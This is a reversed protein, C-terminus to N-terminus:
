TAPRGSARATRPASTRRGPRCARGTSATASSSSAHQRRRRHADHLHAGGTRPRLLVAGRGLAPRQGAGRAHGRRRQAVFRQAHLHASAPAAHLGPLARRTARASCRPSARARRPRRRRQRPDRGLRAPVHAPTGRRAHARERHAASRPPLPDRQGGLRRGGGRHARQRERRRGRLGAPPPGGPARRRRPRPRDDEHGRRGDAARPARRPDPARGALVRDRRAPLARVLVPIGPPRARAPHDEGVPRLERRRGGARVDGPLSRGASRLPVPLADRAGDLERCPDRPLRRGARDVAHHVRLVELAPRRRQRDHRRQRLRTLTADPLLKPDPANHGFLAARTRLAYVAPATAPTALSYAHQLGTEWEVRTTQSRDDTQVRSLRVFDWAGNEDGAARQSSVVLLGDGAKLGTAVGALYLVTANAPLVQAQLARPTMANWEARAEIAEVTEFTQPKEGPGPVSQVKRASTSRRRAGPAGPRRRELTFALCRRPPSARPRARLRDAAGARPDLAARDRHAPLSENAIREQYFTLVDAVSAFADLLAITFDDDDRTTLGRSRRSARQTSLRPWCRRRSSAGAHRRPLRDGASGPGTRVVGAPTSPASAPAAAATTSRRLTPDLIAMVQRGDITSASARRAGPLEPRQRARSRSGASHRARRGRPARIPRAAAAPVDHGEVSDVGDVAHAAAYLRSLYVPQGFTFNDPHFLGRRGDPLDRAASCRSCRASSTPASTTASRRLRAARDRAARLAARRGRPRPRGHPLARAARCCARHRLAADRIRAASRISPSSSPTGAARGASRRRRASCRRTASPWARTTTPRSRASRRASRTRRTAACTRSRRPISAAPPRCRIACAPRHRRDSTSSTRSRRPASTAARGTASATRRPSRRAPRRAPPRARRRRLPAHAGDDEVEVVFDTRPRRELRAPRPPRRWPVATAPSAPSSRDRPTADAVDWRMAAQAPQTRTTRRRTPSRASRSVRRRLRPPVPDRTPGPARGGHRGARPLGDAAPRTRRAARRREARPRRARHQRARREDGNTM